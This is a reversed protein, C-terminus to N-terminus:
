IFYRILLCFVYSISQVLADLWFLELDILEEIANFSTLNICVIHDFEHGTLIIWIAFTTHTFFFGVALKTIEGRFEM